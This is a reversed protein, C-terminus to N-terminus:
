GAKLVLLPTRSQLALRHTLSRHFFADLIGRQQRFLVLLDVGQEAAFADLAERVSDGQLHFFRIDITNMNAYYFAELEEPDIHFEGNQNTHVHVCLLQPHYTQMLQAVKWIHYPAAAALNSAIAVKRFPQYLGGEPVILLQCPAQRVLGSTVTGVWKEWNSHRDRTGMVILDAEREACYRAVSEVPMGAVVEEQVVPRTEAEAFVALLGSRVFGSIVERALSVKQETVQSALVPFDVGTDFDPYVVHVVHVEAQFVGALELAYRYANAANESFDTPVVIRRFDKM